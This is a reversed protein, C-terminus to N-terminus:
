WVYTAVAGPGLTATAVERGVPKIAFTKANKSTNLVILITKGDPGRFATNPLSAPLDSDIRVSGPRVFKSAHAIIYYAPNRLVKGSDITIAGLCGVCGGRATHPEYLANSALNWELVTKCWNRTAGIVLNEIHWPIDTKMNGPAGIWQETFYLNKDPHAQHVQMLADIKGGYLHFASGDIYKKALADNLVTIPYDPRDANHDYIIIKTTLRAKAFAPGLGTKVFLAQENAPMLLSPENGPHLPENQVTMADIRIGLAKMAQIYRVLYRAYVGYYEPLLSGGRTDHNTKMWAPPSWPSGMIKIGPNIQIIEKLVPVLQTKDPGLDFHVLDTDTEGPPVDDYSYVHDSLDSAGISVRLYSIGIANGTTGFLEHLLKKREKVGMALLHQASGSTLTFGFGDIQQYKKETNIHIIENGGTQTEQHAFYRDPQKRFLVSKAPHTLWVQVPITKQAQLISICVPFFVSFLFLKRM